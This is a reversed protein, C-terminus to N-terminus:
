VPIATFQTLQRKARKDFTATARCGHLTNLTAILADVFDVGARYQSIASRMSTGDEVSFEATNLLGELADAIQNRGYEAYASELVWLVEIVVVRNIFAPDESSCNAAIYRRAAAFQRADDRTLLRVLVNTDLGIM